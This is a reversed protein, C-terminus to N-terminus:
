YEQRQHEAEWQTLANLEATFDASDSVSELTPDDVLIRRLEALRMLNDQPDSFIYNNERRTWVDYDREGSTSMLVVDLGDKRRDNFVSHLSNSPDHSIASKVFGHRTLEETDFWSPLPECVDNLSSNIWDEPDSDATLVDGDILRTRPEWGHSDSKTRWAKVPSSSQDLYWQDSWELEYGFRELRDGLAKPIDNWDAFLICAPPVPTTYGPEGYEDAWDLQRNNVECFAQLARLTLRDNQNPESALCPGRETDREVQWRPTACTHTKARKANRVQYSM